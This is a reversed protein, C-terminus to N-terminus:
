RWEGNGTPMRAVPTPASHWVRPPMGPRGADTHICKAPPVVHRDRMPTPHPDRAAHIGPWANTRTRPAPPM